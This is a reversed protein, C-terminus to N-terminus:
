GCSPMNERLRQMLLGVAFWTTEYRIYRLVNEEWLCLLKPPFEEDAHWLKVFIKLGDILEIAYGIDAGPLAQGELAECAARFEAPHSDFLEADPDKSEEQLSRHFYHGQTIINVWRGTIYRDRRSDCLWDLITMVEGFSNGDVWAGQHLREMDGTMRCIRYPEALLKTYLYEGDFRLNCRDILEQQDYTLFRKKAQAAQLKYNDRRERM